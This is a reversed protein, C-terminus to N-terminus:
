QAARMQIKMTRPEQGICRLFNLLHLYLLYLPNSGRKGLKDYILFGEESMCWEFRM